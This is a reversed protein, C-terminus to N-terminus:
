CDHNCTELKNTLYVFGLDEKNCHNFNEKKGEIPYNFIFTFNHMIFPIFAIVPPDIIVENKNPYANEM